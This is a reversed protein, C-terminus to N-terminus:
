NHVYLTGLSSQTVHYRYLPRGEGQECIGGNNLNFVDGCRPCTAMGQEDLTLRASALDCHPCGLDYAYYPTLEDGFYPQGVILGAMGWQFTRREVETLAQTTERGSLTTVLCTGDSLHPRVSVFQGMTCLTNYPPYTLDCTYNVAYLTCFEKYDSQCSTLLLSFIFTFLLFIFPLVVRKRPAESSDMIFRLM